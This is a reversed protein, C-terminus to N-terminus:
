WSDIHLITDLDIRPAPKFDTGKTYAVPILAGQSITEYPIGLVEAANQEFMLHLSTWSTGLGRARAALCFSWVAPHLSGWFSASIWGPVDDIRGEICPIVLVPADAMHEALYEASNAVRAQTADRDADGTSISGAYFPMNRYATFAQQYMEGIAKRKAADTVIMWHWGQQNSGTPAQTAIDVCERIVEVPVPRDLDLRKRVARTTTLLEDPTLNLTASM